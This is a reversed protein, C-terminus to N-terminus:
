VILDATKQVLYWTPDPIGSETFLYVFSGKKSYVRGLTDVTISMLPGRPDLEDAQVYYAILSMTNSDLHVLTRGVGNDFLLLIGAPTSCAQVLNWNTWKAPLAVSMTTNGEENIKHLQGADASIIICDEIPPRLLVSNDRPLRAKKVSVIGGTRANEIPSLQHIHTSTRLWITDNGVSLEIPLGEFNFMLSEIPLVGVFEIEFVRPIKAIRGSKSLLWLDGQPSESMDILEESQSINIPSLTNTILDYCLFISALPKLSFCRNGVLAFSTSSKEALGVTRFHDEQFQIRSLQQGLFKVPELNEPSESLHIALEIAAELVGLLDGRQPRTIMEEAMRNLIDWDVSEETAAIKSLETVTNAISNLPRRDESVCVQIFRRSQEAVSVAPTMQVYHRKIEILRSGEMRWCGIPMLWEGAAVVISVHWPERFNEKHVKEDMSSM